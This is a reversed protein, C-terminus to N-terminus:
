KKLSKQKTFRVFLVNLLRVNALKVLASVANIYYDIDVQLHEEEGGSSSKVIGAAELKAMQKRISFSAKRMM